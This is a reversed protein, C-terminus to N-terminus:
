RLHRDFWDRMVDLRFRRLAGRGRIQGGHNCKKMRVLEVECGNDKLASYFQEAQEMPCRIDDEGQLLLTPTRCNRAHAIPSRQWYVDPLRHIPGGLELELLSKGADSTGWM